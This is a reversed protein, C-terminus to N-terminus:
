ADTAEELVLQVDEDQILWVNELGDVYKEPIPKGANKAYLIYDGTKCWQVGGLAPDAYATPGVQLVKGTTVNWKERKEDVAIIISGIQTEVNDAQVLLRHGCVKLM